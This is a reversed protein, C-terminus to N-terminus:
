CTLLTSRNSSSILKGKMASNLDPIATMDNDDWADDSSQFQQGISDKHFLADGHKGHLIHLGQFPVLHALKFNRVQYKYEGKLTEQYFEGISKYEPLLDDSVLAAFRPVELPAELKDM